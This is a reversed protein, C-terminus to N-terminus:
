NKIDKTWKDIYDIAEQMTSCFMVWTDCEYIDVGIGNSCQLVRYVRYKEEM